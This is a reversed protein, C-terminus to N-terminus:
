KSVGMEEFIKILNEAHKEWTIKSEEMWKRYDREKSNKIAEELSSFNEIKDFPFKYGEAYMNGIIRPIGAAMAEMYTVGGGAGKPPLSVFIKCKNYVENMKEHPVNEIILVPINLKKGILEIHEKTLDETPKNTWGLYIRKKHLPKFENMNVATALLTAGSYRKENARDGTLLRKGMIMGVILQIFFGKGKQTAHFFCFHKKRFIPSPFLLPLAINWDQTYIIDYKEKKMIEKIKKRLPFISRLTNKLKLDDQRSLIDVKHGKKNLEKSLNKMLTEVGGFGNKKREKVIFLIKM